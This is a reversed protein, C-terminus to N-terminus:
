SEASNGSTKQAPRAKKVSGSSRPQVAVRLQQLAANEGTDRVLLGLEGLQDVAQRVEWYSPPPKRPGREPKPETCLAVLRKYFTTLEGSRFDAGALVLLFIRTALPSRCKNLIADLEWQEQRLYRPAKITAEKFPDPDAKTGYRRDATIPAGDKWRVSTKEDLDRSM